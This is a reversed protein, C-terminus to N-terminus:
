QHDKNWRIKIKGDEDVALLHLVIGELRKEARAEKDDIFKDKEPDRLPITLALKTGRGFSYIGNIDLNLINSSVKLDNVKVLEGNIAFNGSLDKFVINSINRFPFAFKAINTIPKFDILEGNLVAFQSKGALSNTQLAGGAFLKGQIVAQATLSGKLNTPSFSKISFNNMSTLFQAIDVKDIKTNSKVVYNKGDPVLTGEFTIIGGCSNVKGKQIILENDVLLVKVKAATAELKNYVIRDVKVNLVVQCKEIVDHIEDSINGKSNSKKAKTQNSDTLISVLNKVDLFPTYINWDVVMKKPNIYYLTLFNDIKGKMFVSNRNDKFNMKKILLAKETFDLEVNTKIFTLNRPGYNAMADKVTISGTFYPKDIKLDVIGFNFDLNVKAQGSSFRILDASLITNLRTIDFSSKFSGSATTNEFNSIMALPISFPIAKFDGTFKSLTITSNADNCGAGKKSNNTFSADFNCNTIMGDPITLENNRVKTKVKIEPDGSASIDGAITCMVEIPNKLDIQGVRVSINDSLLESANRWLINTKIDIKYASKNKDLSFSADIGFMEKGIALDETAVNIQNNVESFNVKLKGEVMKDKIFSGRKTNFAMSKAFTKVYVITEWDDGQFKIKSKLDIKDFDFLKKGIQNESIFHFQSVNIQRVSSTTSSNSSSDVPKKRFIASNDLGNIDKYLHLTAQQIEIKDISIENVLLDAVNVRIEIQAAKLLTRKHIKWLSDHVEVQSLALTMKPFGKLFKYNVDKISISGVINENVIKNIQAVIQTKNNNFYIAFLGSSIIILIILSAFFYGLQKLVQGFNIKKYNIIIRELIANM